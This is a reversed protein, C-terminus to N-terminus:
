ADPEARQPWGQAGVEHVPDLVILDQMDTHKELVPPIFSGGATSLQRPVSTSAAGERQEILGETELQGTLRAVSSGIEDPTADYAVAFTAVIEAQAAGLQLAQWVEAGTGRLSYYTGTDLHILIVEGEITEHM